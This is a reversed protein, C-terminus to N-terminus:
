SSCAPSGLFAILLEFWYEHAINPAPDRRSRVASGGAGGGVWTPAPITAGSSSSDPRGVIRRREGGGYRRVHECGRLLGVMFVDSADVVAATGAVASRADTFTAMGCYPSRRIRATHAAAASGITIRAQITAGAISSLKAPVPFTGSKLASFTQRM